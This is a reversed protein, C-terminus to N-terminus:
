DETPVYVMKEGNYPSFMEDTCECFETEVAFLGYGEQYYIELEIVSETVYKEAEEPSMGNEVLENVKHQFAIPHKERSLKVNCLHEYNDSNNIVTKEM